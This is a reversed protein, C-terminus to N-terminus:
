LKTARSKTFAQLKLKHQVFSLFIQGLTMFSEATIAISMTCIANKLKHQAYSLIYKVYLWSVLYFHQEAHTTVTTYM